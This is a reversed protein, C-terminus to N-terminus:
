SKPRYHILGSESDKMIRLGEVKFSPFEKRIVIYVPSRLSQLTKENGHYLNRPLLFYSNLGLNGIRPYQNNQPPFLINSDEPTNDKIFSIFDYYWGWKRRMKEDYSSGLDKLDRMLYILVPHIGRGFQAAFVVVFVILM